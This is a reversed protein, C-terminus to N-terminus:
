RMSLHKRVESRSVMHGRVFVNVSRTVSVNKYRQAGCDLDSDWDFEDGTEVFVDDLLEIITLGHWETEIAVLARDRNIAYVRGNM